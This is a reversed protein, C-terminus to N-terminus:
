KHNTHFPKNNLISIVSRNFINSIAIRYQNGSVLQTLRGLDRAIGEAAFRSAEFYMFWGDIHTVCANNYSEIENRLERRSLVKPENPSESVINMNIPTQQVRM